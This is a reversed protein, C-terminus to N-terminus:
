ARARKESRQKTSSANKIGQLSGQWNPSDAHYRADSDMEVFGGTDFGASRGNGRLTGDKQPQTGPSSWRLITSLLIGPNNALRLKPLHTLLFM